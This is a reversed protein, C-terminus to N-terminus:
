EVIKKWFPPTPSCFCDGELLRVGNVEINHFQYVTRNQDNSAHIQLAYPMMEQNTLILEARKFYVADEEFRPYAEIWVQGEVDLPTVIRLYYLRNLEEAKTCFFLPYPGFQLAKGRLEPLLKHQILQKKAYDYQYISKGDCVWKEQRESPKEVYFLGKDPARYNIKGEDVSPKNPDGFVPDYEWRTFSCALAELDANQEERTKLVRDLEAQQELSLKLPAPLLRKRAPRAWPVEACGSSLVLLGITTALGIRSM